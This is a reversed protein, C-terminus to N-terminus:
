ERGLHRALIELGERVIEPPAATYCLRLHHPWPGFSSGPAVLLGEVALDMLLSNLGREDLYESLDIFLFTGGEPVPVGLREAAEQAMARYLRKSEQAWIEGPGALARAAALQSGTPADYVTQVAIKRFMQIARPPAVVYGVRNGAMGYAKSFSHISFTREPALPRMAQHKAGWAYHEYVEDALIWLDRHRAWDALAEMSELSLLRGSPNNPTNLYLAVSRPTFAAELAQIIEEPRELGLIPVEIPQGGAVKIAGAVLPWHPSLLLVEDGFSTFTAVATAIGQTAGSSIWLEEPEFSGLFPRRHELIAARLLPHGEVPAYRHLGPHEQERLDELHCGQAPARYTDGVQLPYIQPAEAALSRLTTYVSGPIAEIHAAFRPM